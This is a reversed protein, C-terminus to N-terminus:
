IVARNTHKDVEPRFGKRYHCVNLLHEVAEQDFFLMTVVEVEQPKMVVLNIPVDNFKSHLDMHKPITQRWRHGAVVPLLQVATAKGEPFGTIGM